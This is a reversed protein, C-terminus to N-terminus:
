LKFLDNMDIPKTPNTQTNFGGYLDNMTLNGIGNNKINNEQKLKQLKNRAEALKIDQNLGKLRDLNTLYQKRQEIQRNIGHTASGAQIVSIVKGFFGKKKFGKKYKDITKQKQKELKTISKEYGSEDSQEKKQKM